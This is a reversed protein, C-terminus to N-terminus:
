ELNLLYPDNLYYIIKELVPLCSGVRPMCKSLVDISHDILLKKESAISMKFQLTRGYLPFENVFIDSKIKSMLCENCTYPIIEDLTKLLLDVLSVGEMVYHKIKNLEKRCDNFYELNESCNDFFYSYKYSASDSEMFHLVTAVYEMRLYGFTKLDKPLNKILHTNRLAGQYEVFIRIRDKMSEKQEPGFAHDKSTRNSRNMHNFFESYNELIKFNDLKYGQELFIWLHSLQGMYLAERFPSEFDGPFGYLPAGGRKLLLKVIVSSKPGRNYIAHRLAWSMIRKSHNVLELLRIIEQFDTRDIAKDLMEHNAKMYFDLDLAHKTMTDHQLYSINDFSWGLNILFDTAAPYTGERRKLAMCLPAAICKNDYFLIHSQRGISVDTWTFDAGHKVLIKGIRKSEATNRILAYILPTHANKTNKANVEVGIEILYKSVALSAHKAAVHLLNKGNKNKLDKLSSPDLARLNKLTNKGTIIGKIKKWEVAPAM